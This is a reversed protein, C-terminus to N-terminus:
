PGTQHIIGSVFSNCSVPIIEVTNSANSTIKVGSIYYSALITGSNNGIDIEFSYTGSSLAQPISYAITKSVGTHQDLSFADDYIKEDVVPFYGSVIKVLHLVYKREPQVSSSNNSVDFSISFNRDNQSVVKANSITIPQVYISAAGTNTVLNKESSPTALTPSNYITQASVFNFSFLCFISVSVFSLIKKM